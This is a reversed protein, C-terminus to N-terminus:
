NQSMTFVDIAFYKDNIKKYTGDAIIDKLAQNLADRLATDEQRVAMGAGEGVFAPDTIPKGILECCKGDETKSVWELLPILDGVQLELRGSALDLNVEDQTRYLRVDADPYTKQVYDAQTTASQAGIAKGKLAENSLDALNAGKPAAHTMAAKYYPDTFAVQKKREETIFMSAIIVDYKGALLAPIIGDWDQAVVECKVQMKECLALGIEVDFEGLKGSTDIFNFPPYAGETGIRVVKEQAEAGTWAAVLMAAVALMNRIRMTESGRRGTQRGHRPPGYARGDRVTLEGSASGRGRAGSRDPGGPPRAAAAVRDLWRCPRHGGRCAPTRLVPVNGGLSYAGVDLLAVVDGPATNEALPRTAPLRVVEARLTEQARGDLDPLRDLLRQLLYEGEVDFFCDASDCLPGVRFEAAAEGMRNATVMHYYWRVAAVDLLLNYGADLYLWREGGRRKESEVRALLM